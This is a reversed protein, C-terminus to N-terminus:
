NGEILEIQQPRTIEVWPGGHEEIWGRIRIRRGQLRRPEIGANVLQREGQKGLIATFDETWRRGFNLYILGGSDRVSVVKGEVLAFRGRLALIDVPNEANKIEYYPDNWLGLKAARAAGESTLYATTCAPDVRPSVFGHGAALMAQGVSVQTERGTVAVYAVLRGYRDSSAGPGMLLIEQGAVLAALASKAADGGYARPDVADAPRPGPVEIGALRIQRGDALVFTRGDLITQVTGSGITEGECPSTAATREQAASISPVTLLLFIPTSLSRAWACIGSSRVGTKRFPSAGVCSDRARSQMWIPHARVM